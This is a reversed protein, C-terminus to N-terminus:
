KKLNPLNRAKPPNKGHVELKADMNEPADPEYGEKKGPHTEMAIEPDFPQTYNEPNPQRM